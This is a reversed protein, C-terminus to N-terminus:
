FRYNEDVNKAWEFRDTQSKNFLKEDPIKFKKSFAFVIRPDIYNLKSTGLSVNKMKIKNDKKIKLM